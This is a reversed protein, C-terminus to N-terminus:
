DARLVQVPDARLVRLAPILSAIATVALLVAGASVYSLADRARVGYLLAEWTQGLVFSAAVGVLLGAVGAALAHGVITAVLVAPQAGLALRIAVERLRQTVVQSVLGYVGLAALLVSVAAICSILTMRLAPQRTANAIVDSAARLETVAAHPHIAAAARRVDAMTLPRDGRVHLHFGFATATPNSLADFAQSAPRYVIPSSQWELTNFFTSRVAGVIGVIERWSEQGIRVRQGLGAAPAGFLVEAARANLIVVPAGSAADREDFARGAV